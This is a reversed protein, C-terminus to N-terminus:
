CLCLSPSVVYLVKPTNHPLLHVLIIQIQLQSLKSPTWLRQLSIFVISDEPYSLSEELIHLSAKITSASM